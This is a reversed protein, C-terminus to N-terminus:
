LGDDWCTAASPTELMCDGTYSAPYTHASIQVAGRHAFEHCCSSFVTLPVRLPFVLLVQCSEYSQGSPSSELSSSAEWRGNRTRRRCHKKIRLQM